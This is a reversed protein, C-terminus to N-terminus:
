ISRWGKAKLDFTLIESPFEFLPLWFEEGKKHIYIKLDILKKFFFYCGLNQPKAEL